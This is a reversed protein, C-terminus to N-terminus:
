HQSAVFPPPVPPSTRQHGVTALPARLVATSAPPPFSPPDVIRVRGEYSRLYGRTTSLQQMELRLRSPATRRVRSLRIGGPAAVAFEDRSDGGTEIWELLEDVHLGGDLRDLFQPPYGGAGGFGVAGVIGIVAAITLSRARGVIFWLLSRLIQGGDLPYVPLLNFVLLMFNILRITYLFELLNPM